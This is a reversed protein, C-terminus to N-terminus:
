RTRGLRRDAEARIARLAMEPSLDGSVTGDEYMIVYHGPVAASAALPGTKGPELLSDARRGVYETAAGEGLAEPVTAPDTANARNALTDALGFAAEVIADDNMEPHFTKLDGALKTAFAYRDRPNVLDLGIVGRARLKALAMGEETKPYMGSNLLAETVLKAEREPGTSGAGAGGYGSPGFDGAQLRADFQRKNEALASNQYAVTGEAATAATEARSTAAAATTEVATTRRASLEDQTEQREAAVDRQRLQDLMGVGQTSADAFVDYGTEGLKPTRMMNMGTTMLAMRFNPDDTLKQQFKQWLNMQEQPAPAGRSPLQPATLASGVNTNFRTRSTM